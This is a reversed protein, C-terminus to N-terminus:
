ARGRLLLARLRHPVLVQANQPHAAARPVPAVGPPSDGSARVGAASLIIEVRRGRFADRAGKSFMTNRGDDVGPTPAPTPDAAAAALLAVVLVARTRPAPM